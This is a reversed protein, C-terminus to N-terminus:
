KLTMTLDVTSTRDPVWFALNYYTKGPQGSLHKPIPIAGKFEGTDSVKFYQLTTNKGYGSRRVTVQISTGYLARFFVHGSVTIKEGPRITRGTKQTNFDMWDTPVAGTKGLRQRVVSIFKGNPPGAKVAIMQSPKRGPVSYVTASKPDTAVGIKSGVNNIHGKEEYAYGNWAVYQPAISAAGVGINLGTGNQAVSNQVKSSFTNSTRNAVDAPPTSGPEQTAGCGATFLVLSLGLGAVTAKSYTKM